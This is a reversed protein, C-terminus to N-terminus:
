GLRQRGLMKTDIITLDVVSEPLETKDIMISNDRGQNLDEDNLTAAVKIRKINIKRM